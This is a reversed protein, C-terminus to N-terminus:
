AARWLAIAVKKLTGLLWHSASAVRHPMATSEQSFRNSQV